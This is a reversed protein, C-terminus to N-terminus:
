GGVRARLIARGLDGPLPPGLQPIAGYDRPLRSLGEAEQVRETSFLEASGDVSARDQLAVILIAALGLGGAAVLVALARRSLRMVRPPDPRLRLETAIDAESRPEPGPGTEREDGTM